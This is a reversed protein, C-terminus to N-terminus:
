LKFFAEYYTKINVAALKKDWVPFWSSTNFNMRIRNVIKIILKDVFNANM